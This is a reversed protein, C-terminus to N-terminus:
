QATVVNFDNVYNFRHHYQHKCKLKKEIKIKKKKKKKKKKQRGLKNFLREIFRYVSLYPYIIEM